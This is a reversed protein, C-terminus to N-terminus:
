RLGRLATAELWTFLAVAAAQALMFAAGLVTVDALLAYAVSAVVWMANAVIVARVHGPRPRPQRAIWALALAFPVLLVGAERLLWAPIGLPAALVGAALALGVGMIGSAGGDLLLARRVPTTDSAAPAPAAHVDSQLRTGTYTM